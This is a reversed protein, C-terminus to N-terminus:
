TFIIWTFTHGHTMSFFIPAIFSFACIQHNSQSACYTVETRSEVIFSPDTSIKQPPIVHPSLAGSIQPPVPTLPTGFCTGTKLSPQHTPLLRSRAHHCQRRVLLPLAGAPPRVPGAARLGRGGHAWPVAAPLDKPETDTSAQMDVTDRHHRVLNVVLPLRRTSSIRHSRTTDLAWGLIKCLGPTGCEGKNPSAGHDDPLRNRRPRRGPRCGPHRPRHRGVGRLPRLCAGVTPDPQLLQAPGAVTPAQGHLYKRRENAPVKSDPAFPPDPSGRCAVEIGVDGGRVCLTPSKPAVGPPWPPRPWGQGRFDVDLFMIGFPSVSPPSLTFITDSFFAM